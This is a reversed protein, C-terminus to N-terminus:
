LPDGTVIHVWRIDPKDKPSNLMRGVAALTEEYDTTTSGLVDAISSAEYHELAMGLSGRLEEMEYRTMRAMFARMRMEVDARELHCKRCLARFASLPYEWPEFAHRFAMYYCHHTDLPGGAGCDQCKNDARQKVREAKQKWRPDNLKESYPAPRRTYDYDDEAYFHMSAYISLESILGFSGILDEFELQPDDPGFQVIQHLSTDDLSLVGLGHDEEPARFYTEGLDHQIMWERLAVKFREFNSRASQSVVKCEKM